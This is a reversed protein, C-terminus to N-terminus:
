LTKAFGSIHLKTSVSHITQSVVFSNEVICFDDALSTDMLDEALILTLIM